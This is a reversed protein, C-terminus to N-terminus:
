GSLRQCYPCIHTSRMGVKIRLITNGCRKCPTGTRRFVHLKTVHKGKSGDVRYFNAKGSGLTTGSSKLGEYLAQRISSLLAKIEHDNLSNSKRLPHLKALWLAEDVYINGLGAIFQQNLLLPKLQASRSHLKEKLEHWTLSEELPEPGHNKFFEDLSDVLYFRGFKRPDDFRLEQGNKLAIMVREYPSHPQDHSTLSLRGTMRLHILLKFDELVIAIFKARRHISLIRKNAIQRCFLEVSPLAITKPWSIHANKITKGVLGSHQLDGVITQVEPLEPM